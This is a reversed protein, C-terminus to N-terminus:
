RKDCHWESEGEIPSAGAVEVKTEQGILARHNLSTRHSQTRADDQNVAAATERQELPM